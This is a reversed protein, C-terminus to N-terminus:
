FELRWTDDVLFYTKDIISLVIFNRVLLLVDSQRLTWRIDGQHRWIPLKKRVEYLREKKRKLEVRNVKTVNTTDPGSQSSNSSPQLASKGNGNGNGIAGNALNKYIVPSKPEEKGGPSKPEQIKSISSVQAGNVLSNTTGYFSKVQV